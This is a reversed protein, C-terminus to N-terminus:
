KGLVVSSLASAVLGCAHLTGRDVGPDGAALRHLLSERSSRSGQAADTTTVSLCSASHASCGQAASGVGALPSPVGWIPWHSAGGGHFGSNLQISSDGGAALVPNTIGFNAVLGQQFSWPGLTGTRTQLVLLWACVERRGAM